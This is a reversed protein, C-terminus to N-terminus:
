RLGKLYPGASINDRNDASDRQPSGRRDSGLSWLEFEDCFAPAAATRIDTALSDVPDRGAGDFGWIEPRILFARPYATLTPAVWGGQIRVTVPCVYLLPTGYADVIADDRINRAPIDGALYDSGWGLSTGGSPLLLSATNADVGRANLHGAYVMTRARERGMRNLAQVIPPRADAHETSAIVSATTVTFRHTGADYAGSAACVDAKLAAREAVTMTRTLHFALANDLTAFEATLPDHAQYPYTGVDQKFRRLGADIKGLLAQTNTRQAARTAIQVVPTLLGALTLIIAVVVTLEILTFGSSPITSRM